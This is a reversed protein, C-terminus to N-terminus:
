LDFFGDGGGEPLGACIMSDVVSIGSSSYDDNCEADSVVPVTVKQLINPLLIGGEQFGDKWNLWLQASASGPACTSVKKPM